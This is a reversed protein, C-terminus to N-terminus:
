EPLRESLDFLYDEQETVEIAGPRAARVRAIAEEPAVGAEILLRAAVLGTRGLGGRCHLVVCEGHDLRGRLEAGATRWKREFGADPLDVDDIPLHMWHLKARNVAEPFGTLGLLGFEYDEILSVLATCRSRAIERLDADLDSDWQVGFADEGKRGPCITMGIRGALCPVWDIHLPLIDSTRAVM